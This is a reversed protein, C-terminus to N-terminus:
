QSGRKSKQSLPLLPKVAEASSPLAPIGITMTRPIRAIVTQRVLEFEAPPLSPFLGPQRERIAKAVAIGKLRARLASAVDHAYETGAKRVPRGMDDLIIVDLHGFKARVTVIVKAEVVGNRVNVACIPKDKEENFYREDLWGYQKRPDGYEGDGVTWYDGNCSILMIRRKGKAKRHQKDATKKTRSAKGKLALSACAKWSVKGEAGGGIENSSALSESDERAFIEEIIEPPLEFCYADTLDIDCNETEIEVLCQRLHVEYRADAGSLDGTGCALTLRLHFRPSPFNEFPSLQAKVLRFIASGSAREEDGRESCVFWGVNDDDDPM